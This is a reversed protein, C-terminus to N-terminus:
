GSNARGPRPSNQERDAAWRVILTALADVAQEYHEDTMAVTEVGEVVFGAASPTSFDNHVSENWNSLLSSSRGPKQPRVLLNSLRRRSRPQQRVKTTRPHAIRWRRRSRARCAFIM